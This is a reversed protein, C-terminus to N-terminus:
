RRRLAADLDLAGGSRVDLGPLPAVTQLLHAKVQAPTWNPHQSWVVAAAAAVYPSSMSTGAKVAVGGARDVHGVIREGPAALDVHPGYNSFSTRRGDIGVAAVSLTNDRNIAAPYSYTRRSDAASNGASTVVLVGHQAAERFALRYGVERSLSPVPSPRTGLSMNIIDAGNRIAYRVGAIIGDFLSGGEELVRVPMVLVDPALGYVDATDPHYAVQTAVFTGHSQDANPDTPDGDGDVTDWGDYDDVYGNGDDDRGNGPVEQDNKWLVPELAPHGLHVGSDLVAVVLPRAPPRYRGLAGLWGLDVRDAESRYFGNHLAWQLDWYRAAGGRAAGGRGAGAPLAEADGWAHSYVPFNAFAAVVDPDDNLGAVQEEVTQGYEGLSRTGAVNRAAPDAQVIRVPGFLDGRGATAGFARTGADPRYVVIIEDLDDPADSPPTPAALARSAGARSRFARDWRRDPESGFQPAPPAPVEVAPPAPPEPAPAPDSPAPTPDGGTDRPFTDLLLSATGWQSPDFGGLDSGGDSDPAGEVVILTRSDWAAAAAAQDVLPEPTVIAKVYEQGFPPAVRIRFQRESEPFYVPEGPAIRTSPSFRNPYLFAVTGEPNKNLLTVYGARDSQVVFRVTEGELARPDGAETALTVEFEQLPNEARVLDYPDLTGEGTPPEVILDRTQATAAVAGSAVLLVLAARLSFAPMAPPAHGTPRRRTAPLAETPQVTKM